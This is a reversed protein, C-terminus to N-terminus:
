SKQENANLERIDVIEVTVTSGNTLTYSVKDGVSSDILSAGLPSEPTVVDLTVATSAESDSVYMDECNGGGFDMRVVVGENVKSLDATDVITADRMTTELTKLRAEHQQKVNYANIFETNESNDGATKSDAVEAEATPILVDKLHKVEAEMRDVTQRTLKRSM